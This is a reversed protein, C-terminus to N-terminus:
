QASNNHTSHGRFLIRWKLELLIQLVIKNWFAWKGYYNINIILLNDYLRKVCFIAIWLFYNFFILM